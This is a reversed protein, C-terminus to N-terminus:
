TLVIRGSTGRVDRSIYVYTSFWRLLDMRRSLRRTVTQSVAPQQQQQPAPSASTLSSTLSQHVHASTVDAHDVVVLPLGFGSGFFPESPLMAVCQNYTGAVAM